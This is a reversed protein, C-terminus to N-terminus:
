VSFLRSSRQRISYLAFLHAIDAFKHLTAPHLFSFYFFDSFFNLSFIKIRLSFNESFFNQSTLTAAPHPLLPSPRNYCCILLVLVFRVYQVQISISTTQLIRTIFLFPTKRSKTRERSDKKQKSPLYYLRPSFVRKFNAKQARRPPESKNLGKARKKNRTKINPM